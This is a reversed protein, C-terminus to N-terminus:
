THTNKAIYICVYVYTDSQTPPDFLFTPIFIQYICGEFSSGPFIIGIIQIELGGVMYIINQAVLM